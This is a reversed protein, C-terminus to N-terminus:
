KLEVVKGSRLEDMHTVIVFQFKMEKALAELMARLRPRYEESVAIFPEDLVVLRRRAPRSLALCALRLAFAAVHVPGGGAASSPDVTRGNRVFSLQAETRGRRRLFEIKFEYPDDFVARLCRTVVSAIREHAKQQITQSVIQVIQQAKQVDKVHRDAAHLAERERKITSLALRREHQLKNIKQRYKRLRKM